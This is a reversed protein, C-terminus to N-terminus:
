FYFLVYALPLAPKSLLIKNLAITQPVFSTFIIQQGGSLEEPITNVSEGILPYLLLSKLGSKIM